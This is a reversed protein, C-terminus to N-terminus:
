LTAHVTGDLPEAVWCIICPILYDLQFDLGIAYVQIQQSNFIHGIADKQKELLSFLRQVEVYASSSTGSSISQHVSIFKTVEMFNTYGWSNADKSGKTIPALVSLQIDNFVDSDIINYTKKQM